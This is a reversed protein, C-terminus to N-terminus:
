GSCKGPTAGVLKRYEEATSILGLVWALSQALQGPSLLNQTSNCWSRDLDVARRRSPFLSIDPKRVEIPLSALLWQSRQSRQTDKKRL